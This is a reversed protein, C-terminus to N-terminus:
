PPIGRKPLNIGFLVLKPSKPPQLGVSKFGCRHFKADPHSSPVGEGLGFKTFTAKPSIGRKPLLAHRYQMAGCLHHTNIELQIKIEDSEIDLNSYM